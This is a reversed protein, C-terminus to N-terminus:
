VDVASPDDQKTGDSEDLTNNGPLEDLRHRGADELEERRIEIVLLGSCRRENERRTSLPVVTQTKKDTFDDTMRWLGLCTVSQETRSAKHRQSCCCGFRPWVTPIYPSPFRCHTSLTQSHLSLAQSLCSCSIAARGTLASHTRWRCPDYSHFTKGRLTPMTHFLSTAGLHALGSTLTITAVIQAIRRKQCQSSPLTMVGPLTMVNPSTMVCTYACSVHNRHILSLLHCSFRRPAGLKLAQCM